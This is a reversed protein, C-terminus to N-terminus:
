EGALRSEGATKSFADLARSTSSRIHDSLSRQLLLLRMSRSMDRLSAASRASSHSSKKNQKAKRKNCIDLRAWDREQRKRRRATQVACERTAAALESATVAPVCGAPAAIGEYEIRGTYTRTRGRTHTHTYTHTLTKEEQLVSESLAECDSASCREGDGSIWGVDDKM